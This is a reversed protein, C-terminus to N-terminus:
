DLVDKWSLSLEHLLEASNEEYALQQVSELNESFINFDKHRLASSHAATVVERGAKLLNLVSTKPIM